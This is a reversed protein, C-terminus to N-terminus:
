NLAVGRRVYTPVDLDQGHYLTPESKEFRGKSTIELALTGQKMRAKAKAGKSHQKLIEERKEPSLEPPPPVFRGTSRPAEPKRFFGTEIQPDEAAAPLAGRGTSREPEPVVMAPRESTADEHRGAIVTVELRGTMVADVAAGVIVQADPCQRNLQEMVRRVEAMTLDPGGVFSILVTDAATLAAGGEMLPHALLRELLVRARAEGQAEATALASEAHRGRTVACLDAFDVRILGPQSLLRWIGGVGQALVENMRLFTELVSTTEDLLQFVKQNPVCIVSDAIAKIERLSELAQRQRRAGEWDFPLTVVALVLAGADKAVRAVVPTSGGGTGGGLGAMVFVVDMGECAARLRDQDAEAAARGEAPDGGTGLGFRRAHGLVLKDGVGCRALARAHTGVALWDVGALGSQALLEVANCGANGVGIVRCRLAGTPIPVTSSAPEPKM